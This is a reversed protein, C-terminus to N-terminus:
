LISKFTQKEVSENKLTLDSVERMGKELLKISKDLSKEKKVKNIVDIFMQLTEHKADEYLSSYITGKSARTGNGNCIALINWVGQRMWTSREMWIYANNGWEDKADLEIRITKGSSRGGLENKITLLYDAKKLPKNSDGVAKKIKAAPFCTKPDKFINKTKAGWSYNSQSMKVNKRNILVETSYSVETIKLGESQDTLGSGSPERFWFQLSFMIKKDKSEWRKTVYATSFGDHQTYIKSNSLDQGVAASLYEDYAKEDFHKTFESNVFDSWEKAEAERRAKTEKYTEKAAAYSNSSNKSKSLIEYAANVNQMAEASGGKDPHNKISARKYAKKLEDIDPLTEIGLIRLAQDQSLSSELLKNRFYSM